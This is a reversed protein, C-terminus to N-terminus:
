PGRQYALANGVYEAIRAAGNKRYIVRKALEGNM